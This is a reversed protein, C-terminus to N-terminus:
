CNATNLLQLRYISIRSYSLQYLAVKGLNLDRTRSENGAGYKVGGDFDHGKAVTSCTTCIKPSGDDSGKKIPVGLLLNVIILRGICIANRKIKAPHCFPSAAAQLAALTPEIGARAELYYVEKAVWYCPIGVFVTVLVALLFSAAVPNRFLDLLQLAGKRPSLLKGAQNQCLALLAFPEAKVSFEKGSPASKKKHYDWGIQSKRPLVAAGKASKM